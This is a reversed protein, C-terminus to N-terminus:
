QRYKLQKLLGSISGIELMLKPLLAIYADAAAYFQSALKLVAMPDINRIARYQALADPDRHAITANRLFSFQTQLKRQVQRLARLAEVAKTRTEGSANVEDLAKRLQGGSVKDMDWEHITLLIVRACLNRKWSDPHTLADIKLAQIDREAILLYLAINNIVRSANYRSPEIKIAYSKIAEFAEELTKHKAREKLPLWRRM